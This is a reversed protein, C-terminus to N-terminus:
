RRRKLEDRYQEGNRRPIKKSKYDFENPLYKEALNFLRSREQSSKKYTSSFKSHSIFLSSKARTIGVYLLRREEELADKEGDGLVKVDGPITRDDCGVLWVRDFEL